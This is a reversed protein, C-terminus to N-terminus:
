DNPEEKYRLRPFPNVLSSVVNRSHAAIRKLFRSYLAVAAADASKLDMVQGSVIAIIIQDCAAAVEQKYSAMIARAKDENGSKFAVIMEGFLRTVAEEVEALRAELSGGHLCGPHHRALDYIGKTFDGIREIDYTVSVLNLAANLDTTGNGMALHTLLKKRIDREIANVEKDAAAIDLAVEATESHRLSERSAEFMRWDMDLMAHAEQLAQCYLNDRKLLSIIKTWM